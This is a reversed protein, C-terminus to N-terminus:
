EVEKKKERILDNIKAKQELTPYKGETWSLFEGLTINLEKCLKEHTWGLEKCALIASVYGVAREEISKEM